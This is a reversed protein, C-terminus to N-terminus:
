NELEVEILLQSIASSFLILNLLEIICTYEHIIANGSLAKNDFRNARNPDM